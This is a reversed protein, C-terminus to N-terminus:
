LTYSLPAQGWASWGCRGTVVPSFPAGSYRGAHHAVRRVEDAVETATAGHAALVAAALVCYLAVAAEVASMRRMKSLQHRSMAATPRCVNDHCM